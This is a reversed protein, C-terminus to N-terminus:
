QAPGVGEGSTFLLLLLLLFLFDVLQMFCTWVYQIYTRIYTKSLTCVHTCIVLIYLILTNGVCLNSYCAGRHDAAHGEVQWGLDKDAGCGLAHLFPVYLCSRFVICWVCIHTSTCLYTCLYTRVYLVYIYTYENM